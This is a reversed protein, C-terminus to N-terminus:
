TALVSNNGYVTLDIDSATVVGTTTFRFPTGGALEINYTDDATSSAANGNVDVAAVATGDIGDLLQLVVTGSDFTGELIVTQIGSGAVWTATSGNATITATQM